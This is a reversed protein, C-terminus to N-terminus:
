ECDEKLKELSSRALETMANVAAEDNMEESPFNGTDARYLRAQWYVETGTDSPSVGVKVSYFSIPIVNVDEQLLRYSIYREEENLEDLSETVKGKELTIVRTGPETIEVDSIMPNWVKVNDFDKIKKWIIDPESQIEITEDVKQPTPGHANAIWPMIFMLVIFCSRTMYM